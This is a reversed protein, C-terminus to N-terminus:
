RRELLAEIRERLDQPSFPKTVYDDVGADKGAEFDGEQARATLLIVPLERTREDARLRRTVELGTLKPMSVDLVAVEPAEALALALAQDGDRAQLVRFGSR